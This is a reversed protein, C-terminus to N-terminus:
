RGRAPDRCSWLMAALAGVALAAWCVVAAPTPAGAVIERLVGDGPLLRTMGLGLAIAGAVSAEQGPLASAIALGAAAVAVLQLSLVGATGPGVNGVLLVLPWTLCPIACCAAAAAARRRWLAVPVAAVSAGMRDAASTVLAAALVLAALQAELAAAPQRASRAAAWALALACAGGTLQPTWAVARATARLLIPGPRSV